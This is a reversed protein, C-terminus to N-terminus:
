PSSTGEAAAPGPTSADPPAAPAGTRTPHDITPATDRNTTRPHRLLQDYIAASPLPRTDPPLQALRRRTLSTVTSPPTGTEPGDPVGSPDHLADGSTDLTTDDANKRAELAVADATL